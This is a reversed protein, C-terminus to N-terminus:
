GPPVVQPPSLGDLGIKIFLFSTGLHLALAIFQALVCGNATESPRNPPM